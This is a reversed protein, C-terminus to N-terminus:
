LREALRDVSAAQASMELASGTVVLDDAFIQGFARDRRDHHDAASAPFENMRRGIRILKVVERGVGAFALIQGRLGLVGAAGRFEFGLDRPSPIQRPEIRLHAFALLAPAEDIGRQSLALRMRPIKLGKAVGRAGVHAVRNREVIEFGNRTAAKGREM